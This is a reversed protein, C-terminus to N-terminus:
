GLRVGVGISRGWGGAGGGGISSGVINGTAIVAAKESTGRSKKYKSWCVLHFDRVCGISCQM